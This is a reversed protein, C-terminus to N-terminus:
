LLLPLRLIPDSYMLYIVAAWCAPLGAVQGASCWAVPAVERAADWWGKAMGTVILPVEQGDAPRERTRFFATLLALSLLLM